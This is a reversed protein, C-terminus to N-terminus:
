SLTGSPCQCCPRLCILGHQFWVPHGGLFKQCITGVGNQFASSVCVRILIWIGPGLNLLFSDIFHNLSCLELVDQMGLSVVRNIALCSSTSFSFAAKTAWITAVLCMLCLKTLVSQFANCSASGMRRCTKFHTHQFSPLVLASLFALFASRRVRSSYRLVTM